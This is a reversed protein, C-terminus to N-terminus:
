CRSSFEPDANSASRVLKGRDDIEVLGPRTRQATQPLTTPTSSHRWFM